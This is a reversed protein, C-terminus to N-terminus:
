SIAWSTKLGTSPSKFRALLGDLGKSIEYITSVPKKKLYQFVEDDAEKGLERM